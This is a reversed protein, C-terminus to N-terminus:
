FRTKRRTTKRKRKRRERRGCVTCTKNPPANKVPIAIANPTSRTIRLRKEREENTIKKQLFPPLKSFPVPRHIQAETNIGVFGRPMTPSTGRPVLEEGREARNMQINSKENRPLPTPSARETIARFPSSTKQNEKVTPSSM